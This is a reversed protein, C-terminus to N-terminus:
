EGIEKLNHALQRQVYWNIVGFKQDISIEGPPLFKCIEEKNIATLKIKKKHYGSSLIIQAIEVSHKQWDCTKIPNGQLCGKTRSLCDDSPCIYPVIIEALEKVENNCDTKKNTM